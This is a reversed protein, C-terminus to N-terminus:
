NCVWRNNLRKAFAGSGGAACAAGAVCDPCYILTGNPPAGLNRFPVGTGTFASSSISGKVTVAGSIVTNVSAPLNGIIQKEANSGASEDLFPATLNDTFDNAVIRYHTCGQAILLGYKQTNENYAIVGSRNGDVMVHETGSDIAIGSYVGTNTGHNGFGNSNSSIHNDSITINRSGGQVRIGNLSNSYVQSGEVVIGRAAVINLGNGNGGYAGASSFWSNVFHLDYVGNPYGSAFAATGDLTANDGWSTDCQLANIQGFRVFQGAAPAVVFARGYSSIDVNDIMFGGGSLLEIGINTKSRANQFLRGDEIFWADGGGNIVIGRAGPLDPTDEIMFASLHFTSTDHAPGIDVFYSRYCKVTYIREIYVSRVGNIYFAVGRSAQSGDVTFDSFEPLVLQRETGNSINFLRTVAPGMRLYSAGQGSGRIKLNDTTVNINRDIQCIGAPITVTGGTPLSEQAARFAGSDDTAGDCKAGFDAVNVVPGKAPSWNNREGCVFLRERTNAPVTAVFLEGAKCAEPLNVASASASPSAAAHRTDPIRQGHLALPLLWLALIINTIKASPLDPMM